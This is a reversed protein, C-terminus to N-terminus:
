TLDPTKFPLRGSAPDRAQQPALGAIKQVIFGADTRPTLFRALHSYSRTYGREVIESFLQRGNTVGERRRRELFAGFGAPTSPKPEMINREPPAIRRVWREVRRRGLGLQGSIERVTKGSDYLARIEDFVAQRDERRTSAVVREREEFKQDRLENDSGVSINERIPPGIGNMERAVTERFNM